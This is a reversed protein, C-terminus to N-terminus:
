LCLILQDRGKLDQTVPEYIELRSRDKAQHKTLVKAGEASAKGACRGEMELM